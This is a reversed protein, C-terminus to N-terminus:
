TTSAKAAFHQLAACFGVASLWILYPTVTGRLRLLTGVNGNTLALAAATPLTYGAFMATAVGDRRLGAVIGIPLLVILVYWAVQEPLYQLERTSALQWPWPVALFSVGARIVYRGAEAPTLTLTSAAATTPNVYFGEDLLKYAHGVTFVHGAHTKATAELASIARQQAAPRAGVVLVIVIATALSALRVRTPVSFFVAGVLGCALGLLALPIAGTRLDGVMAVGAAVGALGLARTRAPGRRLAAIAGTITLTTGLLYLPEKLLSISWVFFTPLFMMVVLGGFAPLPGFASRAARFLLIAAVTFLLTNLLRMGYPTPGFLLEVGTLMTVYSNRGYEDNVVFYDYQTVPAGTLVDRARLARSLGYAEDGSLMAVSEDDHKPTNVLFLAGIAALRLALAAVLIIALTRRESSPLGRGALTLVIATLAICWATLPSVTYLAGAALGLLVAGIIHM